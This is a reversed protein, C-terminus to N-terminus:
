AEKSTLDSVLQSLEAIADSLASVDVANDSVTESLDALADGVGANDSVTESLDAIADPADLADELRAAREEGDAIVSERAAMDDDSLDDLRYCEEGDIVVPTILKDSLDPNVLVDGSSNVYKVSVNLEM